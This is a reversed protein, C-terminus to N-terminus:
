EISATTRKRRLPVLLSNQPVPSALTELVAYLKEFTFPKALFAIRSNDKKVRDAASPDGSVLITPIGPSIEQIAELLAPGSSGPMGDDVIIADITAASSKLNALLSHGDRFVTATHGRVKLAGAVIDRIQMDDDAVLVSLERLAQM